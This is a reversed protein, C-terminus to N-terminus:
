GYMDTCPAFTNLDAIKTIILKNEIRPADKATLKLFAQTRLRRQSMVYAPVAEFHRRFYMYVMYMYVRLYEHTICSSNVDGGQVQSRPIVFINVNVKALSPYIGQVLPVNLVDFGQYRERGM